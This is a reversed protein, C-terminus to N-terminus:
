KNEKESKAQKLAESFSMTTKDKNWADAKIAAAREHLQAEDATADDANVDSGISSAAVAENSPLNKLIEVMSADAMVKDTWTDAQDAKIAGRAVHTLVDAKVDKRKLAEVTEQSAKIEKEMDALKSASIIVNQGSKLSAAIEQLDKAEEAVPAEEGDEDNTKQTVEFGFKERDAASLSEKNEVLITREDDTLEDNTKALVDQLTPMNQEKHESAILLTVKPKDSEGTASATIPDLITFLPINTLAAGTIVNEVYEEDNLPNIWGGRGRPCFEASIFKWEGDVVSQAGAPTWEVNVAMLTTDRIELDFWAAAKEWSEHGYNLPLKSQKGNGSVAKGAKWNEVYAELDSPMILIDGHWATVWAGVKLLEFENPLDAVTKASAFIERPKGSQDALVVSLNRSLGHESKKNVVTTSSM